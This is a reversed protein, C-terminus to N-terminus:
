GNGNKVLDLLRDLRRELGELRSDGDVEPALAARTVALQPDPSPAPNAEGYYSRRIVRDIASATAICPQPVLRTARGVERMADNHTPDVCAVLIRGREPAVAVAVVGYREAILVPVLRVVEDPPPRRDLDVVQVYLQRGLAAALTGEDIIGQDVLNQGLRGGWSSQERLATVLQDRTIVGEAVLFEGLRPRDHVGGPGPPPANGM